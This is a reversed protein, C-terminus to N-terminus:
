VGTKILLETKLLFIVFIRFVSQAELCSYTIIRAKIGYIKFIDACSLYCLLVSQLKSWSRM